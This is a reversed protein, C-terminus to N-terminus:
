RGTVAVKTNNASDQHFLNVLSQMEGLVDSHRTAFFNALNGNGLLKDIYRCCVSMTLPEQGYTLEVGKVHDLLNDTEVTLRAKQEAVGLAFTM